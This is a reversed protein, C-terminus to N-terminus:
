CASPRSKVFSKLEKKTYNRVFLGKQMNNEWSFQSNLKIIKAPAYGRDSRGITQDITIQKM